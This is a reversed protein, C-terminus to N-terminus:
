LRAAATYIENLAYADGAAVSAITHRGTSANGTDATVATVNVRSGATLTLTPNARMTVPYSITVDSYHAVAAAFFRNMVMGTAFYRQCRLLEQEVSIENVAAVTGLNLTVKEMSWVNSLTACDNVQNVTAIFNGTNWADPTTQFTTGCLHTFSLLLGVGNTYNWTGATPLGGVVTFSCDQWVNAAPFTIEKVYSRDAGSNRLAVCHIGAVPVRARFAVTFTKGIYKEINFGEIATLDALVDGIAIVTDVTTITVQRAYRGSTSGVAREANFVATSTNVNNWGDLDYAWIVPATFGTGAQAIRFDGNVIDNHHLLPAANVTAVGALSTIDSNAGLAAKGAISAAQATSVPKNVDSTNNASGLGVMASTIGGVTGTFTPSALNAKEGDLENIAAQVTVSAINGAPTNTISGAVLDNTMAVIGDKDPLTWTRVATATNNLFSTFTNAVNRMNHAFLTLGAYGGTADKGSLSQKLDLATQTPTSVPKNVDSTNEVNSLDFDNKNLVKFELGNNTSNVKVYRNPINTGYGSPTDSLHLFTTVGNVLAAVSAAAKRSWHYASYNVPNTGDNVAVDELENAWKRSLVTNAATEVAKSSATTASTGASTASSAAASASATVTAVVASALNKSDAAAVASAAAETAKTTAISASAAGATANTAAQSASAVTEAAKVAATTASAIANNAQTIAASAQTTAIGAQATATSASAGATTAQTTAVGAQTTSIGAQTTAIGAQTTATNAQTVGTAASAAGSAAAVDTATKLVGVATHWAKIEAWLGTKPTGDTNFTTGRIEKILDLFDKVNSAM